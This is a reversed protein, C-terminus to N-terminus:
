TTKFLVHTKWTVNKEVDVVAPAGVQVGRRSLVERHDKVSEDHHSEEVFDVRSFDVALAVDEHPKEGVRDVVDDPDYGKNTM